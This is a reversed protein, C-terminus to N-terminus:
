VRPENDITETYAVGNATLRYTYSPIHNNSTQIRKQSLQSNNTTHSIQQQKLTTFEGISHSGNLKSTTSSNQRSTTTHSSSAPPDHLWLEQEQECHLHRHIYTDDSIDEFDDNMYDDFSDLDKSSLQRWIPTMIENANHSMTSLSSSLLPIPPNISPSSTRKRKNDMSNSSNSHTQSESSQTRSSTRLLDNTHTAQLLSNVIRQKTKRNTRILLNADNSEIKEQNNVGSGHGIRDAVKSLSLIIDY